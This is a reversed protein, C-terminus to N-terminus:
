RLHSACSYATKYHDCFWCDGLPVHFGIDFPFIQVSVFVLGGYIGGGL